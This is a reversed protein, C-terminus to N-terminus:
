GSKLLEADLGAVPLLHGNVAATPGDGALWNGNGRYM